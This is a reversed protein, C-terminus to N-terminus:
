APAPIAAPHRATPGFRSNWAQAIAPQLEHPPELTTWLAMWSLAKWQRPKRQSQFRCPRLVARPRRQWVVEWATGKGRCWHNCCKLCGAKLQQAGKSLCDSGLATLALQRVSYTESSM